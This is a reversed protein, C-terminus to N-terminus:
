SAAGPAARDLLRRAEEESLSELRSLLQEMEAEDAHKKAEADLVAALQRVTPAEFLARLALRVGFTKSVRGLVRIAMLSHGGLEFFNETAGIGDRKLVDGWIDAVTRETPTAPAVRSPAPAAAGDDLASLARRDLKGNATLPLSGLTVIRAPVMYDPLEHRAHALLEDVAATAPTAFAVLTEGELVVAVGAVGPVRGLVGEIEGLEVRYGRVKVQGDARGLFELEGTALRRVRDGTCYVRGIGNRGTIFREATLEPQGVYGLALGAGGIQLEGAVGVPVASGHSDVVHATVNGLPRGIPVSAGSRQTRGGDTPVLWACCGVTTETPGYHNAVRCSGAALIEDVLEWTSAEGGLVLLRRPLAGPGGAALVARLHSPTIKLVDIEERRMYDAFRAGDTAVAEPVVHLTGGSVLAPFIATHGLDAGLTSVTAYSLPPTGDLPLELRDAVAFTYNVLSAQSVAVGKPTGTSGSTFIIYAAAGADADAAASGPAASETALAAADRDLCVTAVTGPLLGLHPETTIVVAVTADAIQRALRAPPVDPLLALYPRRLKLAALVAVIMAASRDLCIGVATGDRAGRASLHAALRSAAGDLEAYTLREGGSVVAVRDPSTRAHREILAAMSGAPVAVRESNWAALQAREDPSLLEIDRVRTGPDAVAAAILTVLHGLMRDATAADFLDTRYWLALRLGDAREGVMLTLDFKIAGLDVDLATVHLGTLVLEAPLTDEMTLVARFLPAGAPAGGGLELMLKELPVEANDYAGICVDAVRGLLETFTPDGDFSTRMVLANAFYGILGETEPRSRGAMPSGVLIDDQGSYRHLLAQYTALLTMYLTAGHDRGLAKLADVVAAPLVRVVSAGAAGPAASRPRDTQLELAPLPGALQARWYGLQRALDAGAMADREWAAYDAYQIPLPALEATSGSRFGAYLAGLERLMVSRSWGDFVIHHTLLFLVCEGPALRILTARFLLDRSLDFHKAAEARLTADLARERDSSAVAGLDIQDLPVPRPPHVVQVAGEGRAEYTTRLIAHRAVLADIARSMAPVDLEGGLRFARPVNYATLGPTARDVLWFLEQGSSLPGPTDSRRPAIRAHSDQEAQLTSEM